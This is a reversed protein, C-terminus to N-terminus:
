PLTVAKFKRMQETIATEVPLREASSAGYFGHVDGVRSLVYQADEPSAIPGGHTLVIVDPNVSKAADAIEQVLAVCDDLTSATAAGISGSTTLGMHAVVIDAGAAAMMRAEDANFCYPTTFLGMKHAMAIMDVEKQYSMGTEELNKRFSGDILGVTPFNQVGAFGIDKVQALLRDMRRFPDTGCVGALLPTHKLIPLIEEGMELMIANADKFPMMGCLSGHGGMRFRGSNYVIILDAGGAEEFKASIGTGAGAGIIPKGSDVVKRLRSLVHDRPGPAAAPICAAVAAAAGSTAVAAATKAALPPMIERFEKVAFAAFEPDNIAHPVRKIKRTDSQQVLKELEEFLAKDADPDHFPQGDVDILSVGKEPILLTVPGTSKNLKAAIFGAMQLNEEPTTRMLTIESNHVYLQRNEFQEPVTSRGGFNVMDCAGLSMVCPIGAGVVADFREPGGPMVGGVCEDAVETTTLDLVGAVSGSAIVKEMAKGGSGTAHFVIPDYDNELAMRVADCCPTTVGFMTMTIAPKADAPAVAPWRVMGAVCSAANGLVVYSVANLGAVDSVSYMMTIDSSGVYPAVQGSAMTSVMVKPFGVPLARMGPTILATGGSGGIGIIASFTDQNAECYLKFAESMSTVSVGRDGTFVAEAGDPHHAAVVDRSIDPSIAPADNTGVDVTLVAAGTKRICSAIYAIEVAKTDMTSVALIPKGAAM